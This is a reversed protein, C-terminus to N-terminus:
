RNLVHGYSIASSILRSMVFGVFQCTRGAFVWILRPMRGEAWDSWFRRQASIPYSLIWAKKMRLAFVRILSPLHGLQDSDESPACENQHNTMDRSLHLFSLTKWSKDYVLLCSSGSCSLFWSFPTPAWRLNLDAQANLTKVPGDILLWLGTSRWASLSSESWFRASAWGSRLRRHACPDNQKNKTSRSLWQTTDTSFLGYSPHKFMLPWGALGPIHSKALSKQAFLSPRQSVTGNCVLGFLWLSCILKRVSLNQCDSKGIKVM